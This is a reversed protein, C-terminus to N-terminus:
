RKNSLESVRLELWRPNGIPRRFVGASAYIKLFVLGEVRFIRIWGKGEELVNEQSFRLCTVHTVCVGLNGSGARASGSYCCSERVPLLEVHAGHPGLVVPYNGPEGCLFSGIFLWEKGKRSRGKRRISDEIYFRYWNQRNLLIAGKEWM